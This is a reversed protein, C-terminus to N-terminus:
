KNYNLSNTKVWNSDKYSELDKSNTYSMASKLYDCENEAWDKISYEVNQYKVLGESTKLANATYNNENILIQAKKSAMGYFEKVVTVKGQKILNITEKYKHFPVERKYYVFTKFPNLIKKGFIDWYFAKYLTTGASEIAKNFISGCMVYDAYILAKQIDGYGRIGGDAIIKCKCNNAKKIEYIEKLLSFIPYHISTNSSTICAGGTGISCRAYDVGARVYEMYTNPNAINGAMIIVDEGWKEKIERVTDLLYKMHGNAIDICIRYPGFRKEFNYINDIFVERAEKLSFAVFNDYNESLFVLRKSLNINRPIVVRIGSKNFDYTNEISVVSSMCSAIIPLFGDNDYPNCESRSTIESITEPVIVIDSYNLKINTKM